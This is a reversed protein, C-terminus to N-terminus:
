GFLQEGSRRRRSATGDVIEGCNLDIDEEQKGVVGHQDVAQAVAIARLRLRLRAGDHLVIM